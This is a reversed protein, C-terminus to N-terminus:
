SLVASHPTNPPTSTYSWVNKAEAGSPSSHDAERGPRKVGVSLAGSLSSYLLSPPSWLRDPRPLSSYFEWGRGLSSGKTWRRVV